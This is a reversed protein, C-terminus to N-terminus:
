MWLWKKSQINHFIFNTLVANGISVCSVEQWSAYQIKNSCDFIFSENRYFNCITYRKMEKRGKKKEFARIWHIAYERENRDNSIRIWFLNPFVCRNCMDDTCYKNSSLKSFLRSMWQRCIQNQKTENWHSTILNYWKFLSFVSM